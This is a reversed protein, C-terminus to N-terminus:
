TKMNDIKNLLYDNILVTQNNQLPFKMFSFKYPTILKWVSQVITCGWFLRRIDERESKCISCIGKSFGKLQM